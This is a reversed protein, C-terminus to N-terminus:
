IIHFDNIPTVYGINEAFASVNKATNIGIVEMNSNFLPGGSNGPNIPADIQIYRDQIGSIIGKTKKLRDQGLPYGMTLVNNEANIKDSDGLKCFDKNKYDITKLVAIDKDYCISHIKVPIKKKGDIPTNIWLKISESVVHACTIIYGDSNIFFGTGISESDSHIKFPSFIDIDVNNSIIKVITDSKKKSTM